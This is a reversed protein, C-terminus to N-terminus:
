DGLPRQVKVGGRRGLGFALRYVDPMQVRGNALPDLVKLRAMDELLGSPGGDFHPPLANSAKKLKGQLKSDGWRRLVEAEDAPLSLGALADGLVKAWPHDETLEDVRIASAMKVGEQLARYDVALPAAREDAVEAARRWAALWSRPTARGAADALHAPLWVHTVGRKKEAGMFEDAVLRVLKKHLGEDARLEAGMQPGQESPNWPAGIEACAARFARGSEEHTGLYQWLMGYLDPREWRLEAHSSRLKSADPFQWLALDDYMDRRIFVKVHLHSYPLWELCAQLLGGALERASRQDSGMRDLADFLVLYRQKGQALLGNQDGLLDRVDQALAAIGRIATHWSTTDLFSPNSSRRILMVFLVARWIAAPEHGSALLNRLEESDPFTLERRLSAADAGKVGFGIDVTVSDEFHRFLVALKKRIGADQLARWWMTKGTGREGVVIPRDLALAGVHREHVYFYPPAAGENM